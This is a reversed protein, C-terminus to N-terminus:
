FFLMIFGVTRSHLHRNAKFVIVIKSTLPKKKKDLNSAHEAHSHLLIIVAQSSKIQITDILVLVRTSM